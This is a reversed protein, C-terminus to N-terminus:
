PDVLVLSGDDELRFERTGDTMWRGRAPKTLAWAKVEDLDGLTSVCHDEEDIWTGDWLGDRPGILVSASAPNVEGPEGHHTETLAAM